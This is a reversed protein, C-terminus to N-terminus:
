TQPPLSSLGAAAHAGPSMHKIQNSLWEEDANDAIHPDLVPRADNWVCEVGLGGAFGELMGCGSCFQQIQQEDLCVVKNRLCCYVNGKEDKLNIHKISKM